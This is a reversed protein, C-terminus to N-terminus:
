VTIDLSNPIIGQGWHKTVAPVFRDDYSIFVNCIVCLILFEHKM